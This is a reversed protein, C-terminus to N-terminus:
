TDFTLTAEWVVEDKKTAGQGTHTAAKIQTEFGTVPKGVFEGEAKTDTILTFAVDEYAEHNMDSLSVAENLFDVLLANFDGSELKFPRRTETPEGVYRPVAASFMGKLAAILLGARTSGLARVRVDATHPLIEYRHM